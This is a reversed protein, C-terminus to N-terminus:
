ISSWGGDVFLTQGTTYSSADSAFYIAAGNLEGPNGPRGVPCVQNYLKLNNGEFLSGKTMETEFLAPGIGNVTIGYQALSTALGKTLNIVGGKSANYAHLPAHKSGVIGCISATNIIKGYKREKMHKVVHKSMLFVGKLNTDIVRDWESEELLDVSCMSAVGANNMLIDIKGFTALIKEVAAIVEEEKTVDCKVPIAKRGTDEIEKSLAELRDYRRALLAVDAGQEAFAKAVQAGIGSSAGTIVAVKGTLDFLNNM